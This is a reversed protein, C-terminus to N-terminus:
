RGGRSGIAFTLSVQAGVEHRRFPHELYYFVKSSLAPERLGLARRGLHFVAAVGADQKRNEPTAEVWTLEYLPGVLLSRGGAMRTEHLLVAEGVVLAAGTSPVLTDRSPEYFYAGRDRARWWELEAKARAVLPGVRVKLTSAAFVRGSFGASAEDRRAKRADDDFRTTADPFYLLSNFTGFYAGPELGVRLDLISLPAFELWLNLRDYAPTLRQSLGFSVHARSLLPHSSRTLPRTWAVDFVNQVGLPEFSAGIGSRMERRFGEPQAEEQATVPEALGLALFSAVLVAGARTSQKM